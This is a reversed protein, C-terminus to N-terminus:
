SGLFLDARNAKGPPRSCAQSTISMESDPAPRRLWRLGEIPEGTVSPRIFPRTTRWKSSPKAMSNRVGSSRLSRSLASVQTTSLNRINTTSLGKIQTTTLVGIQTSSFAQFRTTDLGAILTLAVTGVIALWFPIAITM